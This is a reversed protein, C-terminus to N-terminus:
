PMSLTITSPRSTATSSSTAKDVGKPESNCKLFSMAADCGRTSITAGIDPCKAVRSRLVARVM